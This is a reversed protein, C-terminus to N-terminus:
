AIGTNGVGGLADYLAPNRKNDQIKDYIWQIMVPKIKEGLTEDVGSININFTTENGEIKTQKPEEIEKKAKERLASSELDKERIAEELGKIASNLSEIQSKINKSEEQNDQAKRVDQRYVANPQIDDYKSPYNQKIKELVKREEESSFSTTGNTFDQRLTQTEGFLSLYKERNKPDSRMRSKLDESIYGLANDSKNYNARAASELNPNLGSIEQIKAKLSNLENQKDARQIVLDSKETGIASLSYEVGMRKNLQSITENLKDLSTILPTKNESLGSNIDSIKQKDVEGLDERASDVIKSNIGSALTGSPNSKIYEEAIGKLLPNGKLINLGESIKGNNILSNASTASSRTSFDTNEGAIIEQLKTSISNTNTSKFGTIKGRLDNALDDLARKQPNDQDGQNNYYNSSGESLVRLASSIGTVSGGGKAMEARASDLIKKFISGRQGGGFESEKGEAQAAFDRVNQAGFAIRKARALKEVSDVGLIGRERRSKGSEIFNRAQIGRESIDQEVTSFNGTEYARNYIKDRELKEKTTPNFLRSNAEQYMSDIEANKSADGNLLAALIGDFKTKKNIEELNKQIAILNKTDQTIKTVGLLYDDNIKQISNIIEESADTKLIAESIQKLASEAQEPDQLKGLMNEIFDPGVNRSIKGNGSERQFDKLINVLQSSTESNLNKNKLNIDVFSSAGDLFDRSEKTNGSLNSIATLRSKQTDSNISDLSGQLNNRRNLSSAFKQVDAFAASVEKIKNTEIEQQKQLEEASAAAKIFANNFFTLESVGLKDVFKSLGVATEESILGLNRINYSFLSLDGNELNSIASEARGNGSKALNRLEKFDISNIIGKISSEASDKTSPDFSITRNYEIGKYPNEIYKRYFQIMSGNQEKANAMLGGLSTAATSQNGSKLIINQLIKIANDTDDKSSSSNMLVSRIVPPLDVLASARKKIANEISDKSDQGSNILEDLVKQSEYYGSLASQQKESQAGLRNIEESFRELPIASRQVEDGLSKVLGIMAGIAAGTPGAVSGLVAMSGISSVAGGIADGREKGKTGGFSGVFDGIAAGGFAAVMAFRDIKQSIQSRRQSRDEKNAQLANKYFNSKKDINYTNALKSFSRGSISNSAAASLFANQNATTRLAAYGAQQTSNRLFTNRDEERLLRADRNDIMRNFSARGYRGAIQRSAGTALAANNGTKIQSLASTSMYQMPMGRLVATPDNFTGMMKLINQAGVGQIGGSKFTTILKSEMAKLANMAGTRQIANNSNQYIAALQKPTRSAFAGSGYNNGFNPVKTNLINQSPTPGFKGQLQNQTAGAVKNLISVRQNLAANGALIQNTNLIESQVNKLILSSEQQLLKIRSDNGKGYFSQGIDKRIGGLVKGSLAAIGKILIALGPGSIASVMGKVVSQAVQGGLSDGISNDKSLAQNLGDIMDGFDGILNNSASNVGLKGIASGLEIVENKAKQIASVNTQSLIASKDFAENQATKVKQLAQEYVGVGKGLDQYLAKIMNIQYVGGVMETTQAQQSDSLSDYGRALEGLVELQNRFNGSSDKTSIGTVSELKESTGERQLRTFITKLSNGIVGGGRSTRQQLATITALLEEFSVNADLATSGVRQVGEALDKSSVAFSTDAAAMKNVIDAYSYGQSAFTNVSATLSQVAESAGMGTIRSLTLAASTADIIQKTKLGQRAFEAAAEAAVFFSQGTSNAVDFLGKELKSMEASTSRINVQINAMAQEVKISSSYLFKFAAGLGYVVSMTASLSFLRDTTNALTKNFDKAGRNLSQFPNQSGAGLSLNAFRKQAHNAVNNITQYAMSGDLDMMFTTVQAM